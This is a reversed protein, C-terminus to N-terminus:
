VLMILLVTGLFYLIGHSEIVVETPESFPGQEHLDSVARMRFYYHDQEESVTTSYQNETLQQDVIINKFGADTALQIQYFNAEPVVPWHFSIKQKDVVPPELEPNALAPALRTDINIAAEGNLGQLGVNDIGRIKIRYKGDAVGALTMAPAKSETDLVVSEISGSDVLQIRYSVAGKLEPWTIESPLKRMTEPIGSLDTADLLKIPPLPRKGQEALTGYGQKVNQGAKANAVKVKGDLVETRMKNNTDVGVRYRTGRVAAVAAPTIIEYRSDPNKLPTVQTELGGRQLRLQTDVMGTSEFAGLSDLTLESGAGLLLVSEDAFRLTATANEESVVTDGINLRDGSQLKTKKGDADIVHVEGRTYVIEVSEPQHKLWAVPIRLRTGPGLNKPLNVSNYEKLKYWYNASKLYTKSINWLNDGPRTTYIWDQAFLPASILFSWALLVSFITLKKIRNNM